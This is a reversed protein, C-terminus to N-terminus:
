NKYIGLEQAVRGLKSPTSVDFICVSMYIRNPLEKRIIECVASNM